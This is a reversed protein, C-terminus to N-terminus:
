CQAEFGVIRLRCLMVLVSDDPSSVIRRIGRGHLTTLVQFSTAPWPHDYKAAHVLPLPSPSRIRKSGRSLSPDPDGHNLYVVAAPENPPPHSDTTSVDAGKPVCTLPSKGARTSSGSPDVHVSSEHGAVSFLVPSTLDIPFARYSGILTPQHPDDDHPDKLWAKRVNYCDPPPSGYDLADDFNAAPVRSSSPQDLSVSRQTRSVASELVLPGSHGVPDLRKPQLAENAHGDVPGVPVVRWPRMSLPNDASGSRVQSWARLDTSSTSPGSSSEAPDADAPRWYPKNHPEARKTLPDSSKTRSWFSDSELGPDKDEGGRDRAKPRGRHTHRRRKAPKAPLDVLSHRDPHVADILSRRDPHMFSRAIQPEHNNPVSDSSLADAAESAAAGSSSSPVPVSDSNADTSDRASLARPSAVPFPDETAESCEVDGVAGSFNTIFGGSVFPNFLPKAPRHCSTMSTNSDGSDMKGAPLPSHPTQVVVIEPLAELESIVPSLEMPESTSPSQEITLPELLTPRSVVNEPNQKHQVVVADLDLEDTQVLVSNQSISSQEPLTQLGISVANAAPSDVQTAASVYNHDTQVGVTAFLRTPPSVEEVRKYWHRRMKPPIHEEAEQTLEAIDEQEEQEEEVQTADEADSDEEEGYDVNAELYVVRDRFHDDETEVTLLLEKGSKLNISKFAFLKFYVVDDGGEKDSSEDEDRAVRRLIVHAKQTTPNDRFRLGGKINLATDVSEAETDSSESDPGMIELSDSLPRRPGHRQVMPSP